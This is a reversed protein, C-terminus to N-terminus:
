LTLSYLSLLLCFLSTLAGLGLWLRYDVRDDFGDRKVQYLSATPDRVLMGRGVVDAPNM